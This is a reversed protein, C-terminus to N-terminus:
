IELKRSGIKSLSDQESLVKIFSDGNVIREFQKRGFPIIVKRLLYAEKIAQVSDPLIKRPSCFVFIIGFRISHHDLNGSLETVWGSKLNTQHCKAEGIATSHGDLIPVKPALTTFTLVVDIEGIITRQSTTASFVQSKEFLAQILEEYKLGVDRNNNGKWATKEARSLDTPPPTAKLQDIEQILASIKTRDVPHLYENVSESSHGPTSLLDRLLSDLDNLSM